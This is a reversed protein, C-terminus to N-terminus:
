FNLHAGVQIVRAPYSSSIVGFTSTGFGTAPAAFNTHNFANIAEGRIQLRARESLAFSRIVSLDVNDYNPSTMSNRQENGFTGAAPQAFAAVNLWMKPGRQDKPLIPKGIINPRQPGSSFSNSNNTSDTVTFPPGTLLKVITSLTWGGAVYSAAGHNLWRRQPGFPLDYVGSAVFSHKVDNSSPGWDASRNYLNSYPNGGDGAGLMGGANGDSNNLNKAYTYSTDFSYGNDFRRKLHVVGATYIAHGEPSAMVTVGNFQPFPRYAQTTLGQSVLAPTIQNISQNAVALRQSVSGIGNVELVFRRPLTQQIGFNYQYAYGNKHNPDVYTVNTTVAGGVPVAGFSDNLPTGTPNLSAPVGNKLYFPATIGNDPSSAGASLGFGLTAGNVSGSSDYPNAFFVGVGGRLVTTPAHFPQWAFGLRPAFDTWRAPFPTRPTGNIGAFRVVGPTNSVPNIATANFTNMRNSDDIFPTDTDWRLGLNLTLYPTVSFDDQVFAGLYYSYRGLLQTTSASYSGVAGLLLSALNSGTSSNGPLGTSLTSFTFAGSPTAQDSETNSSRLAEFGFVLTHKGRVMTLDDVLQVGRIPYQARLASTAGLAAVGAVGFQPFATQAVGTLGITSPINKDIGGTVVNNYRQEYLFRLDNVTQPNLTHVWQGWGSNFHVLAHTKPDGVGGLPYLSSPVTSNNFYIYRGTLRDNPGLQHDVRAIYFNSPTNTNVVGIFNNAGAVNSAPQNPLPWYNLVAVAVPDLNTIKNGPFQTRQYTSGVKVTTSPDYIKILSGAANYTQSFDGQRQLLTPVTMITTASVAEKQGEFGFFFFTKDKRLYGGVTGGYIHYHMPPNTKAGNAVPAFYGPANFATNREFDYGTGHFNNTGSKTNQLVVGSSSGGFQAGYNNSIVGIQQLTDVPPSMLQQGVGLRINQGDGGDLWTMSSQTRGGALSYNMQDIFVVAGAMGLVNMSSRNGLPLDDISETEITQAIQANRTEVPPLEETVIVEASTSGVALVVNLGLGQATDLVVGQITKTQFGDKSVKLTYVGANLNPLTYVGSGSTRVAHVVDNAVAVATVNAEPISAGTSDTVTGSITAQTSQACTQQTGLVALM